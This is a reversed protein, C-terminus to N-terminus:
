VTVCKLKALVACNTKINETSSLLFAKWKTKEENVTICFKKDLREIELQLELLADDSVYGRLLAAHTTYGMELFIVINHNKVRHLVLLSIIIVTSIQLVYQRQHM